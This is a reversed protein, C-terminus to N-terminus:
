YNPSDPIFYFRVVLVFHCRVVYLEVPLTPALNVIQLKEAKTLEYPALDKVLKTIGEETQSINPLYNASLYGIAQSWFYNDDNLSLLLLSRRVEVEVTRLNESAELHSVNGPITSSSTAVLAEEEKKVRLATKTRLLHDAELDRLLSLM